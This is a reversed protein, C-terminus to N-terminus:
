DWKRHVPVQKSFLRKKSIAKEYNNEYICKLWIKVSQTSLDTLDGSDISKRVKRASLGSLDVVQQFTLDKDDM